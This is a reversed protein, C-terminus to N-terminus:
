NRSGDLNPQSSVKVFNHRGCVLGCTVVRTLAVIMGGDHASPSALALRALPVFFTAFLTLSLLFPIVLSDTGTFQNEQLLIVSLHPLEGLQPPINGQLCGGFTLDPRAKKEARVM